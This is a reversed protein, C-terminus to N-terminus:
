TELEGAQQKQKFGQTGLLQWFVDYFPNSPIVLLEGM